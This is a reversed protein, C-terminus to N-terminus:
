GAYGTLSHPTHGSALLLSNRSSSTDTIPKNALRGCTIRPGSTNDIVAPTAYIGEGLENRAVVEFEDGSSLVFVAGREAAVILRDGVLIPTAYYEGGLGLRAQYHVEGSRADLCTILGGRKVYYVRGDHMLPSAVYPLAKTKEWLVHTKTVDGRGGARVAILVNRGPSSERTMRARVEAVDWAKNRNRDIFPFADRGRGEPLESEQVQGDEDSDFFEVFRQPDQLLEEPISADLDFYTKIAKQGPINGTTWGGFILIDGAAVPSPCIFVPLNTVVWLEEGTRADYGRLKGTGGVVVESYDAHRWIYPSAYNRFADPRPTMWREEGTSADFCYVASLGDVDRVLYLADGEIIPSAGAGFSWNEVPFEREWVLNGEHDLAILGYAGFYAYVRKADVCVTPAAPSSDRHLYEEKSRMPFEKVWALQGDSRRLSIVQHIEGEYGTLYIRDGWISPSSSGAPVERKWQLHEEPGFRDPVHQDPVSASGGPGRFQPWTHSHAFMSCGSLFPVLFLTLAIIRSM